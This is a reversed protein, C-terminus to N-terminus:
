IYCFNTAVNMFARSIHNSYQILGVSVQIVEHFKDHTITLRYYLINKLGIYILQYNHTPQANITRFRM